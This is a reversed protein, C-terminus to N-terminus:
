KLEAKRPEFEIKTEKVKTKLLAKMAENTKALAKANTINWSLKVNVASDFDAMDYASPEREIYTRKSQKLVATYKDGPLKEYENRKMHYIMLGEVQRAKSEMSKQAKSFEAAQAKLRAAENEYHSVVRQYADVKCELLYKADDIEARMAEIEAASLREMSDELEQMKQLIEWLRQPVGSDNTQM